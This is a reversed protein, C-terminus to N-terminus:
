EDRNNGVLEAQHSEIAKTDLVSIHGPNLTYPYTVLDLTLYRLLADKLGPYAQLADLLGDQQFVSIILAEESGDKLATPIRGGQELIPRVLKYLNYINDFVRDLTDMTQDVDTSPKDTLEIYPRKFQNLRNRFKAVIEDETTAAAAM